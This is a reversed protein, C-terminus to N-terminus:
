WRTDKNNIKNQKKEDAWAVGSKLLTTHNMASSRYPQSWYECTCQDALQSSNLGPSSRGQLHATTDPILVHGVTRYTALNPRQPNSENTSCMWCIIPDLDLSNPPWTLVEFWGQVMEASHCPANNQQFLGSGSAFVTELHLRDAVVLYATHTLTLDMHIAPGLTEWLTVSGRNVQRRGM